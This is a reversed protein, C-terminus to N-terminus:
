IGAQSIDELSSVGLVTCPLNSWPNVDRPLHLGALEPYSPALYDGTEPVTSLIRQPDVPWPIILLFVNSKTVQRLPALLNEAREASMPRWYDETLPLIFELRNLAQLKSINLWIANWRAQRSAIADDRYGKPGQPKPELPGIFPDNYYPSRHWNFRLSRISQLRQPLLVTSLNELVDSDTVVFNTTAYLLDM